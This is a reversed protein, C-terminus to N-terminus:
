QCIVVPFCQSLSVTNVVIPEPSYSRQAVVALLTREYLKHVRRTAAIEDVYMAVWHEAPIDGDHTNCVFASPYMSVVEPLTDKAVVEYHCM